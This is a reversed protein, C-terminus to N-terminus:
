YLKIKRWKREARQCKRKLIAMKENKWPSRFNDTVKKMKLPALLDISARLRKCYCDVLDNCSSHLCPSPSNRFSAIFNDAGESDLYLKKMTGEKHNVENNFCYFFVWFHDSITVDYVSSFVTSLGRTPILDLIHGWAESHAWKLAPTFDMLLNSFDLVRADTTNDLHWNFDGVITIRNYDTHIIWLPESSFEDLLIVNQIPPGYVTVALIYPECKLLVAHHEFSSFHGLSLQRHGLSSSLSSATGVGRMGNRISSSSRSNAPVAENLVALGELGLWTETLFLCDSSSDCCCLNNITFNTLSRVNWLAMNLKMQSNAKRHLSDTSSMIM